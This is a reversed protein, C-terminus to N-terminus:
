LCRDHIPFHVKYCDVARDLPSIRPRVNQIVNRCLKLPFTCPSVRCLRSEALMAPQPALCRPLPLFGTRVAEGRTPALTVFAYLLGHAMEAFQRYQRVSQLRESGALHHVMWRGVHRHHFTESVSTVVTWTFVNVNVPLAIRFDATGVLASADSRRPPTGRRVSPFRPGEAPM